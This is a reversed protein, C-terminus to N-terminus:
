GTNRMGAAIGNVTLLLPRAANEDGARRRRVLEVQMLNLPDVYPNRLRISRELTPNRELLKRSGTLLKIWQKTRRHEERIAPWVARKADPSALEAYRAAITLDTKAVVMEINDLVTRFFPWSKYMDLLDARGSPRAGIEELASGVGYWAPLIARTQTWAFVWPIARLAELGGAQRKSPRSGIPLRTIEDVPTAAFFFEAFRPNDWVLARYVRRGVDALESFLEGFRREVDPAPKAQADVTHLLAGGIILELTRQALEPRGYKHDLAEGQETAKYRGRVSGAPLALIAQQSPGGGRAVTEGRGHFIRIAVGAAGAVAPLSEQARRLAATAALLGVEKGSDSYGVMVEQVGRRRVHECYTPDDLLQRLIAPSEELAHLTEFLPVIDLSVHEPRRSCVGAHHACRLAALVDEASETMSLILTRCATEGARRQAQAIRELASLLRTSGETAPGAGRTAQDAVRADAAPTRMELEAIAFGLARVRELLARVRREGAARTGHLSEALLALDAELEGANHYLHANKTDASPSLARRTLEREREVAALSAALRAEIFRLKRRWPEGESRALENRALDPMRVRDREISALLEPSPTAYRSSQSLAGGLDRAAALLRRLGRAEYARIADDLVDPTVFPNGDMDGGVWSHIRVPVRYSELKEGYAQFFARALQRPIAPLLNWLVEEIYWAVNKVEDGVRPREGRVEDTHWLTAIEERVDRTADDKEAATLQCRDYHELISSIRYLKELVTRRTAESPHATFTLTIDLSAIADRMRSASVGAEKAALMIAALSGRQPRGGAHSAHARARRVRHHQEALNVLRFYLSFARIVPAAQESTLGGLLTQLAIAAEGREERPGRRRHIALKRIREELAFLADGDLDILVEGLLRGLWRVDRRLPRDIERRTTSSARAAKFPSSSSPRRAAMIAM